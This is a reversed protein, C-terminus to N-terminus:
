LWECVLRRADQEAKFPVRHTEQLCRVPSEDQQKRRKHLEAAQLKQQRAKLEAKTLKLWRVRAIKTPTTVERAEGISDPCSVAKPLTKYIM